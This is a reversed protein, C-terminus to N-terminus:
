GEFRGYSRVLQEMGLLGADLVVQVTWDQVQNMRADKDRLETSPDVFLTAGHSSPGDPVTHLQPAASLLETVPLATVFQVVHPQPVAVPDVGALAALQDVVAPNVLCSLVADFQSILDAVGVQWTADKVEEKTRGQEHRVRVTLALKVTLYAAPGDSTSRPIEVEVTAGIPHRGDKHSCSWTLALRTSRNLGRREFPNYGDCGFASSKQILTQALESTNMADIFADATRESISRWAAVGEVPVDLESEIVYDAQPTGDVDTPINAVRVSNRTLLSPANSTAFLSALHPRDAKANRGQLRIPAHGEILVPRPATAADVRVVLVFLGDSGPISVPIVEPQWTPPELRNHCSNVIQVIVDERVGVIRDPGPTDVVGVLIIGGYSNAFAAISEAVGKSFDAKYELTLSEPLNQKVLDEIRDYTMDSAM